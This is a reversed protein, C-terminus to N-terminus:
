KEEETEDGEEDEEQPTEPAVLSDPTEEDDKRPDTPIPKPDPM